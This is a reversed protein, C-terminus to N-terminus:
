DRRGNGWRDGSVRLSSIRDNWNSHNNADLRTLDAIDREVLLREGRFDADEYVAVRTRGFTRISSIGDNWGISRLDRIDDGSDWCKSNGQFNVHQYICVRDEGRDSGGGGRYDSSTVRLSDVQDNWSKRWQRFDRVDSTLEAERGQFGPHEYLHLAARGRVRVSSIQNRRNGLDRDSDGVGYCEEWGGYDAHEYVCVEGGRGGRDSRDGRREESAAERPVLATLVLGACVASTSLLTLIPKM